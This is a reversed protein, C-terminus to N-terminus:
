EQAAVVVARSVFWRRGVWRLFRWALACGAIITALWLLLSPLLFIFETMSSVYSAVGDLGERLALKMQYLPRWNLGFVQAEAEARLTVSIAVTEIQKSLATFEGQQQDIQGRVEGLKESVELTDKVTRAQSLIVLYQKEEARLNRLGAEQDVYQKTVDQAEVRESEVRLGLWGVTNSLNPLL